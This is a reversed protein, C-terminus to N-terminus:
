RDITVHQVIAQLQIDSWFSLPYKWVANKQVVIISDQPQEGTFVM